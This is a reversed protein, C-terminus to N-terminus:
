RPRGHMLTALAAELRDVTTAFDARDTDFVLDSFPRTGYGEALMVALREHEWPEFRRNRDPAVIAEPRARLSVFLPVIGRDAFRRRFYIYNACALPYAIVVAPHSALLGLGDTVISRSTTLISGYWPKEPDAHDDGDIFGARLKASVARGLTTKGVGIPRSLFIAYQQRTGM